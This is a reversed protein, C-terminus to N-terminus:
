SAKCITIGAVTMGPPIGCVGDRQIASASREVDDAGISACEVGVRRLTSTLREPSFIERRLGDEYREPANAFDFTLVLRGGPKLIRLAEELVHEKYPLHEVVSICTM